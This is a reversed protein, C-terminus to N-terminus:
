SPPAAPCNGACTTTTFPALNELQYVSTTGGEDFAVYVVDTGAAMTMNTPESYFSNNDQDPNDCGNYTPSYGTAGTNTYVSVGLFKDNIPDVIGLCGGFYVNGDVQTMADISDPNSQNKSPNSETACSGPCGGYITTVAGLSQTSNVSYLGGGNTGIYLSDGVSTMTSVSRANNQGEPVESYTRWTDPPGLVTCSTALACSIATGQDLGVYLNTGDTYVSSPSGSPWGTPSDASASDSQLPLSGTFDGNSGTVATITGGQWLTFADIGGSAGPPAATTEVPYIGGPLDAVPYLTDNQTDFVGYSSDASWGVFINTGQASMTTVAGSHSAGGMPVQTWSGSTTTTGFSTNATTQPPTYEYLDGNEAGAYAIDNVTALATVKENNPLQGTSLVGYTPPTQGSSVLEQYDIDDGSVPQANVPCLENNTGCLSTGPVTIEPSTPPPENCSNGSPCPANTAWDINIYNDPTSGNKCSNATNTNAAGCAVTADQALYPRVSTNDAGMVTATSQALGINDTVETANNSAQGYLDAYQYLLGETQDAWSVSAQGGYPEAATLNFVNAYDACTNQINVIAKILGVIAGIPVGSAVTFLDGGAGLLEATTAIASQLGPTSQGMASLLVSLAAQTTDQAVTLSAPSLSDDAVVPETVTDGPPLVGPPLGDQIDWGNLLSFGAPDSGTGNGQDVCEVAQGSLSVPVGYDTSNVLSAKQDTTGSMSYVGANTNNAVTVSSDETDSTHLSRDGATWFGGEQWDYSGDVQHFDRMQQVDIGILKLATARTKTWSSTLGNAELFATVSAPLTVHYSRNVDPKDLHADVFTDSYEPDYTSPGSPLLIRAVSLHIIAEDARVHATSLDNAVAYNLGFTVKTTGNTRVSVIPDQALQPVPMALTGNKLHISHHSGQPLDGAPTPSPTGSSTNPAPASLASASSTTLTATGLLLCLAPVFLTRATRGARRHSRFPNLNM